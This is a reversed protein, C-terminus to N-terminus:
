GRLAVEVTGRYECGDAGLNAVHLNVTSVTTQDFYIFQGAEGSTLAGFQLSVTPVITQEGVQPSADGVGDVEYGLTVPAATQNAFFLHSEMGNGSCAFTVSLSSPPFAVVSQGGPAAQTDIPLVVSTNCSTLGNPAISSIATGNPCAKSTAGQFTTADRGDLLDANLNKVKTSSNVVLPANAAPVDISVGSASSSKESNTVNLVASPTAGQLQSRANVRNSEGLNFVAASM